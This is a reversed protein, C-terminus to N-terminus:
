YHRTDNDAARSAANSADHSTMGLDILLANPMVVVAAPAPTNDTTEFSTCGSIIGLITTLLVVLLMRHMM